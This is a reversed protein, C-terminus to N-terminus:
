FGLVQWATTLLYKIFALAYLITWIGVGICLIYWAARLSYSIPDKIIPVVTNKIKELLTSNIVFSSVTLFIKAVLKIIM